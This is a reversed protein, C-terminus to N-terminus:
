RKKNSLKVVVGNSQARLLSKELDEVRIKLDRIEEDKEIAQVKFLHFQTALAEYLDKWKEVRETVEKRVVKKGTILM